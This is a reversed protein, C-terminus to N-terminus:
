GPRGNRWAGPARLNQRVGEILVVRQMKGQDASFADLLQKTAGYVTTVMPIRKLISEVAHLIRRGLIRTVAWGLLYFHNGAPALPGPCAAIAVPTTARRRPVM